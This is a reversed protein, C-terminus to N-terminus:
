STITVVKLRNLSQFLVRNNLDLLEEIEVVKTEDPQFDKSDIWMEVARNM